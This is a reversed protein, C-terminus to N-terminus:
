RAELYRAMETLFAKTYDQLKSFYLKDLDDYDKDGPANIGSSVKADVVLNIRVMTGTAYFVTYMHIKEWLNQKTIEGRISEVVIDISGGNDENNDRLVKYNGHYRKEFFDNIATKLKGIDIQKSTSAGESKSDTKKSKAAPASERTTRLPEAPREGSNTLEKSPQKGETVYFGKLSKAQLLVTDNAARTHLDEQRLTNKRAIPPAEITISNIIRSAGCSKAARTAGGKAGASKAEGTLTVERNSVTATGAEITKLSAFKDSICKQIDADSRPASASAKATKSEKKKEPQATQGVAVAPMLLLTITCALM